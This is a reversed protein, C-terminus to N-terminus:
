EMKQFGSYDSHLKMSPESLNVNESVVDILDYLEPADVDVFKLYQSEM